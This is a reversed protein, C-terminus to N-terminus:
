PTDKRAFLFNPRALERCPCDEVHCGGDGHDEPDHDCECPVIFSIRESM